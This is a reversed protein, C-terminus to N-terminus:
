NGISAFQRFAPCPGSTGGTKLHIMPIHGDDAAEADM